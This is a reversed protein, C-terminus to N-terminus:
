RHEDTIDIFARLRRRTAVTDAFWAFFDNDPDLGARITDCWDARDLVALYQQVILDRQQATCGCRHPQKEALHDAIAAADLYRPVTPAQRALHAAHSTLVAPAPPYHQLTMGMGGCDAMIKLLRGTHDVLDDDADPELIAEHLHATAALRGAFYGNLFDGDCAHRLLWHRSTVSGAPM